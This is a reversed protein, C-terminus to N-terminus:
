GRHRLKVDLSVWARLWPRGGASLPALSGSKAIRGSSAHQPAPVASATGNHEYHEHGNGWALQLCQQVCQVHKPAHWYPAHWYPAHWYPAHWHPAHWYPVACTKHPLRRPPSIFRPRVEWAVLLLTVCAPAPLRPLGPLFPLCAALCCPLSAAPSALLLPPSCCPLCSALSAPFAPLLPPRSCPLCAASAASAASAPLRRSPPVNAESRETGFSVATAHVTVTPPHHIPSAASRGGTCLPGRARARGSAGM